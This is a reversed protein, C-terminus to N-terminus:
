LHHILVDVTLHNAFEASRSTLTGLFRNKHGAVVLDINNREVFKELDKFRRIIAMFAIDARNPAQNAVRNLMERAAIAEPSQSDDAPTDSIYELPHFEDRLHCLSVKAGRTEPLSTVHNLLTLGDNEDHILILVHNYIGM